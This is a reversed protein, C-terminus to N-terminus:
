KRKLESEIAADAARKQPAETQVTKLLDKVSPLSEREKAMAAELAGQGSDVSNGVAKMDIVDAARVLIETGPIGRAFHSESRMLWTGDALQAIPTAYIEEGAFRIRAM